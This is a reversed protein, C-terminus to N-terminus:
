DDIDLKNIFENIKLNYLADICEGDTTEEGPNQIISMVEKLLKIAMPLNNACNALYNALNLSDYVSSKNAVLNDQAIYTSVTLDEKTSYLVHWQPYKTSFGRESVHLPLLNYPIKM